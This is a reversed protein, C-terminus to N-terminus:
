RRRVDGHGRTEDREFADFADALCRLGAHDGIRQTRQTVVHQQRSFGAAGRQALAHAGHQEVLGQRRHCRHGFQQQDERGACFMEVLHYQGCEGGAAPHDAVTERIGGIRVLATSAAQRHPM